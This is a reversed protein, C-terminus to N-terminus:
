GASKSLFISVASISLHPAHCKEPLLMALSVGKEGSIKMHLKKSREVGRPLECHLARYRLANPATKSQM